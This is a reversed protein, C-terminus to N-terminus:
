QSGSSVTASRASVYVPNSWAQASDSERTLRARVYSEEGSVTYTAALAGRSSQVLRGGDAIFDITAARDTAVAITRGSVSISSFTAGSSAFFNGSHLGEMIATSSLSDAFVWTSAKKCHASTVNHCDDTALLFVRRGQSLLFDARNEANANAGVSANFVEIGHYGTIATLESDTWNPNAPYGGPWNPHNLFLFGGQAVTADIVAQESGRLVNTVNIRNLHNGNVSQEVGPIFLIGPVGPDPTVREHDTISLFHYGADRYARAVTAPDQAGDSNTSHCHLQGKFAATKPTYGSSLTLPEIALTVGPASSVGAVILVVPVADGSPAAVPIRLNVQLVGTVLGPATGAYLVHAPVGGVTVAVPLPLPLAQDAVRGDEAPPATWGGATAFLSVIAGQRAPHSPRNVSNDPWHLAAAQGRGSSDLTFIGPRAPAVPLSVTPSLSGDYEVQIDASSQGALACPTVASIQTSSVYLLPAALGNFLVRTSALSTPVRGDATLQFRVPSAPGLGAGFISVIECPAIPGASYSAGNVVSHPYFQPATLAFALSVASLM